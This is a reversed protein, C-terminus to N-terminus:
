RSTSRRHNRAPEVQVPAEADDGTVVLNIRFLIAFFQGYCVAGCVRTIIRGTVTSM